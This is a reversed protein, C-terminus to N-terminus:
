SGKSWLQILMTANHCQPWQSGSEPAWLSAAINNHLTYRLHWTFDLVSNINALARPVLSSKFKQASIVIDIQVKKGCNARKKHAFSNFMEKQVFIMDPHLYDWVRQLPWGQPWQGAGDIVSQTDEIFWLPACTPVRIFICDRSRRWPWHWLLCWEFYNSCKHYKIWINLWANALLNNYTRRM